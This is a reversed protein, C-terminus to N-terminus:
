TRGCFRAEPFPHQTRAPPLWRTALRDMREWDLRCRQSRRRLAKYWLRTVQTRFCAVAARNGPVAYYNLHGRVVSGLWQGQEPVPLHRRRMLEAKVNSLKSRMRKSITTRRLLFRGNKNKGCIHTFGLFDFTEPKGLGLAERNRAAYRGFQILRTKDAHLELSFKAFRDRLDRLFQMADGRHEFGAVFDDAFRLIVMDGRAHRRRWQRAWRDLVYHLYVNALLPSASGGQPTGEPTESWTGDEIVGAALWKRVLRLIRRDAIRHELFKILWDQDLESFFNRIDADLVWNVKKQYIGAALADLADHPKRGPRFGYSFGLFDEEYIANLVEVVARQVIKDELSAIGLPRQRGDPKPIYVRRSPKARYAGNYVRCHLDQLNAELAKGYDQWTVGDAGPAAGPRIDWYAQRLRDVDVHHLLATFRADKDRRAVERVRDLGNLGSVGASHGPRTTSTTNGKALSSGEVAEAVAQVAKNPPSTLVVLRDSKGRENMEPKRGQGKRLPGVTTGDPSRPVERNERVLVGHM